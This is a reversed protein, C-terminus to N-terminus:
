RQGIRFRNVLGSAPAELLGKASNSALQGHQKASQATAANVSIRWNVAALQEELPACILSNYDALLAEDSRGDTSVGETNLRAVIARRIPDGAGSAGTNTSLTPNVIFHHM